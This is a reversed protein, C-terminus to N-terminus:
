IEYTIMLSLYNYNGLCRFQGHPNVGSYYNLFIGLFSEKNEIFHKWGLSSNICWERCEYEDILGSNIEVDKLPQYGLKIRNRLEISLLNINKGSALIGSTRQVDALIYYELSMKSPALPLNYVLHQAKSSYYGKNRNWIGTAGARIALNNKQIKEPDNLTLSAEWYEYSLNVRIADINYKMWFILVEDGIHTSEHGFPNLKISINKIVGPKFYRIAKLSLTSVRYDTNVIPRSMYEELPAWLVHMSVPTSISFSFVKDDSRYVDSRFIPLDIGLHIETFVKNMKGPISQNTDLLNNGFGNNIRILTSSTESTLPTCYDSPVFFSNHFSVEKQGYVQICFILLLIWTLALKM